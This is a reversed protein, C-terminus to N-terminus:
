HGGSAIRRFVGCDPPVALLDGDAQAGSALVFRAFRYALTAKGIGRPGTLLVAHPMRGSQFLRRLAREAAEHGLLNPNARPLPPGNKIAELSLSGSESDRALPRSLPAVSARSM